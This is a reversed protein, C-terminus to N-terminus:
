SDPGPLAPQRASTERMFLLKRHSAREAEWLASNVWALNLDESISGQNRSHSMQPTVSHTQVGAEEEEETLWEAAGGPPPTSTDAREPGISM